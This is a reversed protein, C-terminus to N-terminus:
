KCAEAIKTNLADADHLRTAQEPDTNLAGAISAAGIDMLTNAFKRADDALPAPTAPALRDALYQGGASLSLRANAAVAMSGTVDAEGGPSQLNTNLSIGRRVLDTAACIAAKADAQQASSYTTAAAPAPAPRFATWGALGLAGLAVILALVPVVGVRKRSDAHSTATTESSPM